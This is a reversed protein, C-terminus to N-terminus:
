TVLHPSRQEPLCGASHDGISSCSPASLLFTSCLCGQARHLHPPPTTPQAQFHSCLPSTTHHLHKKAACKNQESKFLSSLFISFATKKCMTVHWLSCLINIFYTILCHLICEQRELEQQVKQHM